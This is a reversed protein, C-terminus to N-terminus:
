AVKAERSVRFLFSDTRTHTHTHTHTHGYTHTHTHTLPHTHTHTHTHGYTHTHTHTHTRVHTHGYTHTRVHTHTHGYTHTRASTLAWTELLKLLEESLLLIIHNPTNRTTIQKNEKPQYVIICFDGSKLVNNRGTKSLCSLKKIECPAQLSFHPSASSRPAWLRM